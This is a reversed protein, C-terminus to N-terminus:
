KITMSDRWKQHNHTFDHRLEKDFMLHWLKEIINVILLRLQFWQFQQRKMTENQRKLQNLQQQQRENENQIRESEEKVQEM